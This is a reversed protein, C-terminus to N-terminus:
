EEFLAIKNQVFEVLAKVQEKRYPKKMQYQNVGSSPASSLSVMMLDPQEEKLWVLHKNEVDDLLLVAKVKQHKFLSLHGELSPVLYPSIKLQTLEEYLIARSISSGGVVLWAGDDALCDQLQISDLSLIPEIFRALSYEHPCASFNPYGDIEHKAQSGIWAVPIRPRALRTQIISPLERWEPKLVDYAILLLDIEDTEGVETFFSEASSFVYVSCGLKKLVTEVQAAMTFDNALWAIKLNDPLSIRGMSSELLPYIISAQNAKVQKFEVGLRDCITKNLWAFIPRTDSIGVVEFRLQNETVCISLRKEEILESAHVSMILANILLGLDSSWQSQVLASDLKCEINLYGFRGLDCPTLLLRRQLLEGLPMYELSTPENLLEGLCAVLAQQWQRAEVFSQNDFYIIQHNIENLILDIELASSPGYSEVKLENLQWELQQLHTVDQGILAVGRYHNDTMYPILQWQYISNVNPITLEFGIGVEGKLAKQLAQHCSVPMFDFVTRGRSSESFLTSAKHNINQVLAVDDCFIIAAQSADMLLNFRSVQNSVLENKDNMKRQLRRLEIFESEHNSELGQEFMSLAYNFLRQSLYVLVFYLLSLGISFFIMWYLYRQWTSGAESAQRAIQLDFALGEKVVQLDGRFFKLKLSDPLVINRESLLIDQDPSLLRVEDIHASKLLRNALTLNNNLSIFGYLFGKWDGELTVIKKKYILISAGDQTQELVWRGLKSKGVLRDISEQTFLHTRPDLIHSQDAWEVYFFDLNGFLFEDHRDFLRGLDLNAEEQSNLLAQATSGLEYEASLLFGHFSQSVTFHRVSLDAQNDREIQEKTAFLFFIVVLFYVGILVLATQTRHRKRLSVVAKDMAM